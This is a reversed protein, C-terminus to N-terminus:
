KQLAIQSDIKQLYLQRRLRMIKLLNKDKLFCRFFIKIQLIKALNRYINIAKEKGVAKTYFVFDGDVRAKERKENADTYSGGDLHIIKASPINVINKGLEHIVRYCLLAEEGYMFIDKDFGGLINFDTKSIMLAAGIIMGSVKKPKNSTNFTSKKKKIKSIIWFLYNFHKSMLYKNIPEDFYTLNPTLDKTYLNGGVIGAENDNKIHNLLESIADNIMIIDSNLFLLYDGISFKAGLNGGNGVGINNPSKILRYGYEKEKAELESFVIEDVSNDVVIIEYSCGHCKEKISEIASFLLNNTKYNVFVISVDMM